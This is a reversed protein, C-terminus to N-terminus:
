AACCGKGRRTPKLSKHQLRMKGNSIAVTLGLPEVIDGRTAESEHTSSLRSWCMAAMSALRAAHDIHRYGDDFEDSM